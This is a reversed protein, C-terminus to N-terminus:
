FPVPTFAPRLCSLAGIAATGAFRRRSRKTEAKCSQAGATRDRTRRLAYTRALGCEHPTKLLPAICFICLRFRM